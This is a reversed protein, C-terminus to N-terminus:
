YEYIRGESALRLDSVHAKSIKRVACHEYDVSKRRRERIYGALSAFARGTRTGALSLFNLVTFIRYGKASFQISPAKWCCTWLQRTTTISPSSSFIKVTKKLLCRLKPMLLEMVASNWGEVTVETPTRESTTTMRIPALPCNMFIRLPSPRTASEIIALYAAHCSGVGLHQHCKPEGPIRCM